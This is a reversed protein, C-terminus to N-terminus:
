SVKQEQVQVTSSNSNYIATDLEGERKAVVVACVADGTVNLVTTAMDRLRDISALIAISELPIGISSFVISLMILGAGPIGATGITALIVTLSVLVMHQLTFEIGYANAFFVASMAQFLSSGNMNLACGLPLCFNALGKSIGLKEVGCQITVPLTASSSCTSAATAIAEAMGKFFPLPRLKVCLLLGGFLVVVLFACAAYYTLLFKMIPYLVELGFTGTAWAMLAFVGFPALSMVLSTLRFMLNALAEFGDKLVKGKDGILNLGIGCLISLVIIQLVNGEAFAHIPNKPVLSLLISSFTPLERAEVPANLTFHLDTGLSFLSSAAFGLIIALITSGAYLLLSLGGIRGLKKKDPSNFVGVVMSSFVLPVILMSLLNIFLTGIPKVYEAQPGLVLGTAIGLGIAILIKSWLKM